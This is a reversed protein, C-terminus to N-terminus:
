RMGKLRDLIEQRSVDKFGVRNKSKGNELDAALGNLHGDNHVQAQLRHYDSRWEILIGGAPTPVADVLLNMGYRTVSLSQTLLLSAESVAVSTVPIAGYGDWDLELDTFSRIRLMSSEIPQILMSRETEQHTELNYSGRLDSVEGLVMVQDIDVLSINSMKLASWNEALGIHASSGSQPFPDSWMRAIEGYTAPGHTGSPRGIRIRHKPPDYTIDNWTTM